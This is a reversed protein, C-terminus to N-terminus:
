EKPPEPLPQWHTPPWDVPYWTGLWEQWGNEVWRMKCIWGNYNWGQVTTGNKPADSIQQWASM